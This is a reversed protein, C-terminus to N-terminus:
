KQIRYIFDNGFMPSISGVYANSIAYKDVVSIKKHFGRHNPYSCAGLMPINGINETNVSGCIYM